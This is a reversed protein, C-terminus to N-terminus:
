MLYFCLFMPRPSLFVAFPFLNLPDKPLHRGCLIAILFVSVLAYNKCHNVNNIGCFKHSKKKFKKKSNVNKKQNLLKYPVSDFYTVM